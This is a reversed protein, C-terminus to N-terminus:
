GRRGGCGSGSSGGGQFRPYDDQFGLQGGSQGGEGGFGVQGTQFAFHIHHVLPLFASHLRHVLTLFAPCVPELFLYVRHVRPVFGTHVRHVRPM